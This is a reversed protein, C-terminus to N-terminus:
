SETVKFGLGLIAELVAEIEEASIESTPLIENVEEFTVYGRRNGVILLRRVAPGNYRRLAAPVAVHVPVVAVDPTATERRVAQSREKGRAIAANRRRARRALFRELALRRTDLAM